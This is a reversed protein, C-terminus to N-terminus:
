SDLSWVGDEMVWAYAAFIAGITLFILLITVVWFSILQYKGVDKLIQGISKNELKIANSQFPKLGGFTTALFSANFSLPSTSYVYRDDDNLYYDGDICGHKTEFFGTGTGQPQFESCNTDHNYDGFDFLSAPYDRGFLTLQNVEAVDSGVEDWTYYTETHCEETKGSGTCVERTHMTYHEKSRHVYTYGKNMEDFKAPTGKATFTGNALVRGQQSDVIYNFDDQKTSQVATTYNVQNKYGNSDMHGKIGWASMGIFV